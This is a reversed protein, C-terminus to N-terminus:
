GAKRGTLAELARRAEPTGARELVEVVRLRRLREARLRV